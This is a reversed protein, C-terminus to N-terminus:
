RGIRLGTLLVLSRVRQGCTGSRSVRPESPVQVEPRRWVSWSSRSPVRLTRHRALPQCSRAVQQVAHVRVDHVRRAGPAAGEVGVALHAADARVVQSAVHVRDEVRRGDGGAGGRARPRPM